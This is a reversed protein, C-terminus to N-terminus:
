RVFSQENEELEAWLIVVSVCVEGGAGCCLEGQAGCCVATFFKVGGRSIYAPPPPKSTAGM